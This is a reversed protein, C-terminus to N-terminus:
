VSPWPRTLSWGAPAARNSQCLHFILGTHATSSVENMLSVSMFLLFKNLDNIRFLDVLYHLLFPFIRGM